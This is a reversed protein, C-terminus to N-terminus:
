ATPKYSEPIRLSDHLAALDETVRAYQRDSLDGMPTNAGLVDNVEQLARDIVDDDTEPWSRFINLCDAITMGPREVQYRHAQQVWDWWEGRFEVDWERDPVEVTGDPLFRDYIEDIPFHQTSWGELNVYGQDFELDIEIVPETVTTVRGHITDWGSQYDIREDDRIRVPGRAIIEIM